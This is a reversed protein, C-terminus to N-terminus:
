TANTQRVISTTFRSIHIDILRRLNQDHINTLRRLLVSGNWRKCQRGFVCSITFSANSPLIQVGCGLPFSLSRFIYRGGGAPVRSNPTFHGFPVPNCIGVQHPAACAAQASITSEGTPGAARYWPAREERRQELIHLLSAVVSIPRTLRVAGRRASPYHRGRCWWSRNGALKGSDLSSAPTTHSWSSIRLRGPSSAPLRVTPVGFWGTDVSYVPAFLVSSM